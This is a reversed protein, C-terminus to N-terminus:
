TEFDEEKISGDSQEVLIKISKEAKTLLTNCYNSLNIGEKFKEISADLTLENSELDSVINELKDMAEEYTM